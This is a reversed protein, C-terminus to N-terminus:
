EPVGDVSEEAVLEPTVDQVVVGGVDEQDLAGVEVVQNQNGFFRNEEAAIRPRDFEVEEGEALSEGEGELVLAAPGDVLIGQRHFAVSVELSEQEGEVVGDLGTKTKAAELRQGSLQLHHGPTLGDGDHASAEPIPRGQGDGIEGVARAIGVIQGVETKDFVLNADPM